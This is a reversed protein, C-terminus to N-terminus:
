ELRLHEALMPVGEAHSVRTRRELFGASSLPLTVFRDSRLIPLFGWKPSTAGSTVGLTKCNVGGFYPAAAPGAVLLRACDSASPRPSSRDTAEISGVNFVRNREPPQGHSASRDAVSPESRLDALAGEVTSRQKRSTEMVVYEIS